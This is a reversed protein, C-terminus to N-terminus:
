SEAPRALGLGALIEEAPEVTMWRISDAVRYCAAAFLTRQNDSFAHDSAAWRGLAFARDKLSEDACRTVLAM